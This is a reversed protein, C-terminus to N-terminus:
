HSKYNSKTQTTVLGLGCPNALEILRTLKQLGNVRAEVNVGQCNCIPLGATTPSYLDDACLPLVDYVLGTNCIVLHIEICDWFDVRYGRFFASCTTALIAASEELNM